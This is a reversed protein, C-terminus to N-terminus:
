ITGHVDVHESVFRVFFRVLFIVEDGVRDILSCSVGVVVEEEEEGVVVVLRVVAVVVVEEEGGVVVVLRVEGVVVVFRPRKM